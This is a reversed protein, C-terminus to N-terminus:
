AYTIDSLVRKHTTQRFSSTKKASLTNVNAPPSHYLAGHEVHLTTFRCRVIALVIVHRLAISPPPMACSARPFARSLAKYSQLVGGGGECSSPRLTPPRVRRIRRTPRNDGFCNRLKARRRTKADGHPPMKRYRFWTSCTSCATPTELELELTSNDFVKRRSM